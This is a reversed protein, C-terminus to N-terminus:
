KVKRYVGAETDDSDCNLVFTNNSPNLTISYGYGGGNNPAVLIFCNNNYSAPELICEGPEGWYENDGYFYNEKTITVKTGNDRDVWEGVYWKVESNQTSSTSDKNYEIEPKEYIDTPSVLEGSETIESSYEGEYSDDDRKYIKVYQTPANDMRVTWYKGKKNYETSAISPREMELLTCITAFEAFQLQEDNSVKSPASPTGLLYKWCYDVDQDIFIELIGSSYDRSNRYAILDEVSYERLNLSRQFGDLLNQDLQKYKAKYNNIATQNKKERSSSGLLYFDDLGWFASSVYGDIESDIADSEFQSLKDNAFENLSSSLEQHMQSIEEYVQDAWINFPLNQYIIDKEFDRQKIGCSSLLCVSLVALGSLLHNKM